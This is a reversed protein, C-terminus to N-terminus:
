QLAQDRTEEDDPSDLGINPPAAWEGTLEAETAFDLTCTKTVASDLQAAVNRYAAKAGM